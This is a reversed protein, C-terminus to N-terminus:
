ILELEKPLEYRLQTKLRRRIARPERKPNRCMPCRGMCIWSRKTFPIGVDLMTGKAWESLINDQPPNDIYYRQTKKLRPNNYIRKTRSM